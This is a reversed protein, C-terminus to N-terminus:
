ATKRGALEQVKELPLETVQSHLSHRGATEHGDTNGAEHNGSRGQRRPNPACAPRPPINDRFICRMFGDDIPRLGRQKALDEQREREIRELDNEPM